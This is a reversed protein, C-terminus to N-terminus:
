AAPACNATLASVSASRAPARARYTYRPSQPRPKITAKQRAGNSAHGTASPESAITNEYKMAGAMFPSREPLSKVAVICVRTFGPSCNAM